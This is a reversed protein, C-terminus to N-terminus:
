KKILLKKPSLILINVNDKLQFNKWFWQKLEEGGFVRPTNNKNPKRTVRGIIRHNNDNLFIEIKGEEGSVFREIEVGLNFFGREYYTKHLKLVYTPYRM